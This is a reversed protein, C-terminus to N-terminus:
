TTHECVISLTYELLLFLGKGQMQGNRRLAKQWLVAVKPHVNFSLMNWYSPSCGSTERCTKAM